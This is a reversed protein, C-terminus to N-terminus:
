SPIRGEFGLAFFKMENMEVHVAKDREPIGSQWNPLVPDYFSVATGGFIEAWYWPGWVFLAAKYVWVGQVPSLRITVEDLMKHETGLHGWLNGGRLRSPISRVLFLAMFHGPAPCMCSWPKGGLCEFYWTSIWVWLFLPLCFTGGM